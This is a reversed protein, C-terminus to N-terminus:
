GNNGRGAIPSGEALSRLAARDVKGRETRPLAAVTVFRSPRAAAPLESRARERLSAVAGEDCAVVAVLTSGTRRAPLAVVHAETVAPDRELFAGVERLSVRVGAVQVVDDGRGRVHLRGDSDLVGRDGTVLGHPSLAAATAEPEDLYALMASPSQVVISGEVSPALTAGRDDRVTLRVGDIARGVSGADFAEPADSRELRSVRPSAETLGYQNFFRADGFRSRVADITARDLPAGASAVYRLRLESPQEAIARLSAPVSSLGLVGRTALTAADSGVSVVTGGVRLTTLIQGVLGYSYTPSVVLGTRPADAVPLYRLIADVNASVGEASLAVLRPGATTGSTALVLGTGEPLTRPDPLERIESGDVVAVPRSRDPLTRSAELPLAAGGRNLTALVAAVFTATDGAHVAVLRGRVDPLSGAISDARARLEEYTSSRDSQEIAVASGRGGLWSELARASM